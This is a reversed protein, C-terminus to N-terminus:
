LIFRICKYLFSNFKNSNIVVENAANKMKKTFIIFNVLFIMHESFLMEDSSILIIQLSEVTSSLYNHMVDM